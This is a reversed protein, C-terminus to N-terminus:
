PEGNLVDIASNPLSGQARKRLGHMLMWGKVQGSEPCIRAICETLWINAWIEGNIHELQICFLCSLV